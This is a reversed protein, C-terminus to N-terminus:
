YSRVNPHRYTAGNPFARKAAEVALEVDEETSDPFEGIVDDINAPNRKIFTKGSKSAVWKGDIFNKYVTM